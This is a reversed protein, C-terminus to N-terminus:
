RDSGGPELPELVQREDRRIQGDELTIVRDSHSILRQDHSVAVVTAGRQQAARHLLSIVIRGNESDLSSTPEDAFILQPQKVLARAIAVRQKEGGSLELPRLDKQGALGVEQLVADAGQWAEIGTVGTYRLPLVVQEQATLASFLNFGQFVFGCHALRFADIRGPPLSWLDTGLVTVTGSDPKLLGSLVAILSSKGSGSPGMVLTLEGPYIDLSIDKLVHNVTKGTVFSRNIGEAEISADAESGSRRSMAQTM